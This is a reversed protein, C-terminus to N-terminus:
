LPYRCVTGSSDVCYKVGAQIGAEGEYLTVFRMRGGDFYPLAACGGKGLVVYNVESASAIIANDGQSSISTEGAANAIAVGEGLSQIKSLAGVNAIRSKDGRSLLHCRMGSNILHSRTGSCSLTSGNGLNSQRVREGLSDIHCNPGSNAIRAGEAVNVIQCDYGLNHLWSFNGKNVLLNHEGRNMVRSDFGNLLLTIANQRCTLTANTEESVLQQQHKDTASDQVIGRIITSEQQCFDPTDFWFFYAYDRLLAAWDMRGTHQLRRYVQAYDSGEACHRLFWRYMSPTVRWHKLLLKTIIMEVRGDISCVSMGTQLTLM